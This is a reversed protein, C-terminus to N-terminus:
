VSTGSLTLVGTKGDDLLYFQVVSASGPQPDTPVLTPPLAVDLQPASDLMVNMPYRQQTATDPMLAQRFKNAPDGAAVAAAPSAAGERGGNTFYRFGKFVVEGDVLAYLDELCADVVKSEMSSLDDEAVKRRTPNLSWMEYEHIELYTLRSPSPSESARSELVDRFQRLRKVVYGELAEFNRPELLTRLSGELVEVRTVLERLSPCMPARSDTGSSSGGGPRKLLCLTEWPDTKMDIEVRLLHPFAEFLAMQDPFCPHIEVILHTINMYMPVTPGFLPMVLRDVRSLKMLTEACLRESPSHASGDQTYCRMTFQQFGFILKVLSVASLLSHITELSRDEPDLWPCHDLAVRPTCECPDNACPSDSLHIRCTPPLILGVLPGSAFTSGDVILLHRLAPLHMSGCHQWNPQPTPLVQIM